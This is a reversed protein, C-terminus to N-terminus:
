TTPNCCDLFYKAEDISAPGEGLSFQVIVESRGHRRSGVRAIRAPTTAKRTTRCPSTRAADGAKAFCAPPLAPWLM